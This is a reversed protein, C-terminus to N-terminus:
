CSAAGRLWRAVPPPPYVLEGETGRLFWEPELLPGPEMVPGAVPKGAQEREGGRGGAGLAGGWMM